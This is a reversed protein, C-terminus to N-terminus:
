QLLVLECETYYLILHRTDITDLASILTSLEISLTFKRLNEPFFSFLYTSFMTGPRNGSSYWNILMLSIRVSYDYRQLFPLNISTNHLKAETM